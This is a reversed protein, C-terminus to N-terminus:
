PGFLSTTIRVIDYRREIAVQQQTNGGMPFISTQWDNMHYNTTFIMPTKPPIKVPTYRAQVTRELDFDLLSIAWEASESRFNVDDFILLDHLGPEFDRVDEINKVIKPNRAHAAVWSTKGFGAPGTVVVPRATWSVVGFDQLTVTYQGLAYGHAFTPKFRRTLNKEISAWQSYYVNAYDLRLMMECEGKTSCLNLADGWTIARSRKSPSETVTDDNEDEVEEDQRYKEAFNPIPERLCGYLQPDEGGQDKALYKLTDCRQSAGSKVMEIDPHAFTGDALKIDFGRYRRHDSIDLRTEFCVYLHWHYNENAVAAHEHEEICGLWELIGKNAAWGKVARFMRAPLIATRELAAYTLLFTQGNLRCPRIKGYTVVASM